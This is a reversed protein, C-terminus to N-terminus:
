VVHRKKPRPAHQVSQWENAANVATTLDFGSKARWHKRLWAIFEPLNETTVGARLLTNAHGIDRGHNTPAGGVITYYGNVLHHAPTDGRVAPKGTEDTTLVRITKEQEHNKNEPDQEQLRPQRGKSVDNGVGQLSTEQTPLTTEQTPLTTEMQIKAKKKPTLRYQNSINVGNEARRVKQLVGKSVLMDVAKTITPRSWGTIECLRQLSPFAVGERDAHHAIAAYVAIAYGNGIDLVEAPVKAFGSSRKM